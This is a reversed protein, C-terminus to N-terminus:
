KIFRFILPYRYHKGPNNLIVAIAILPLILSMLFLLAMWFCLITGLFTILFGLGIFLYFWIGSPSFPIEEIGFSMFPLTTSIGLLVGVILCIFFLAGGLYGNIQFNVAEKANKKVVLDDSVISITIPLFISIVPLLLGFFVSLHCVSSLLQQQKTQEM